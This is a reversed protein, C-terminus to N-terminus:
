GAAEVRARRLLDSVGLDAAWHDLYADDLADAQVELIGRLDTWPQTESVAGSCRYRRLNLLILDEPALSVIRVNGVSAVFTRRRALVSRGFHTDDSVFLNVGIGSDAHTLGWGPHVRRVQFDRSLTAILGSEGVAGEVVFDINCTFRQKGFLNVAWAGTLAHALGHGLLTATVQEAIRLNCGTTRSWDAESSGRRLAHLLWATDYMGGINAWRRDFSLRRLAARWVREAEPSTDSLGAM